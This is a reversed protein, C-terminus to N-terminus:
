GCREKAVCGDCTMGQTVADGCQICRWERAAERVAPATASARRQRERQVEIAALAHAGREVARGAMEAARGAVKAAAGADNLTRIVDTPIADPDEVRSDRPSMSVQEVVVLKGCHPCNV